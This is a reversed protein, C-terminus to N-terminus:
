ELGYGYCCLSEHLKYLHVNRSCDLEDEFDQEISQEATGQFNKRCLNAGSCQSSIVFTKSFNEFVTSSSKTQWCGRVISDSGYKRLSTM